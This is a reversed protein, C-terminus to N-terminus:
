VKIEEEEERGNFYKTVGIVWERDETLGISNVSLMHQNDYLFRYPMEDTDCKVLEDDIEDIGYTKLIELMADEIRQNIMGFFDTM